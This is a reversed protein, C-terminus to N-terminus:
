YNPGYGIIAKVKITVDMRGPFEPFYAVPEISYNVASIPNDTSIQALEQYILQGLANCEGVGSYETVNGVATVASQVITWGVTLKYTFEQLELGEAKAGPYIIIMPCNSADPLAQGNIGVYISPAKGYTSMCFDQIPQSAKLADRWKSIIDSLNLTSIM